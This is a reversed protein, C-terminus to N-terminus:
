VHGTESESQMSKLKTNINVEANKVLQVTDQRGQTVDRFMLMMMSEFMAAFNAGMGRSISRVEEILADNPDKDAM